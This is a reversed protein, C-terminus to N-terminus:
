RVVRICLLCNYLLGIKPICVLHNLSKIGKGMDILRNSEKQPPIVFFFPVYGIDERKDESEFKDLSKGEENDYM